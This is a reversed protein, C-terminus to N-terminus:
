SHVVRTGCQASNRFHSTRLIVDHANGARRGVNASVFIIDFNEAISKFDAGCLLDVQRKTGLRNREVAGLKRCSTKPISTGVVTTRECILRSSDKHTLIGNANEQLNVLKIKDSPSLAQVSEAKTLLDKMAAFDTEVKAMEDAHIFRIRFDEWRNLLVV